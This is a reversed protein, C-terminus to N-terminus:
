RGTQPHSPAYSTGAWKTQGRLCECAEKDGLNCAANQKMAEDFLNRYHGRLTERDPPENFMKDTVHMFERDTLEPLHERITCAKDGSFKKANRGSPPVDSLHVNGQDDTWTYLEAQVTGGLVGVLLIAMGTFGRWVTM